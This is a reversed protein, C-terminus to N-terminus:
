PQHALQEGALDAVRGVGDQDGGRDTAPVLAGVEGVGQLVAGDLRVQGARLEGALELLGLVLQEAEAPDHV